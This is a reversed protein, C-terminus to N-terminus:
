DERLRCPPQPPQLPPHCRAAFRRFRQGAPSKKTPSGPQGAAPSANAPDPGAPLPLALSQGLVPPTRAQQAPCREKGGGGKHRDRRRAHFSPM